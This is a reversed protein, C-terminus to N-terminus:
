GKNERLKEKPIGSVASIEDDTLKGMALLDDALKRMKADVAEDILDDIMASPIMDRAQRELILKPTRRVRLREYADRIPDSATEPIERKKESNAILDYWALEEPQISEKFFNVRPLKIFIYKIVDSVPLANKKGIDNKRYVTTQALECLICM